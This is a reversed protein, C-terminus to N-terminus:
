NWYTPKGKMHIMIVWKRQNIQKKNVNKVSWEAMNTVQTTNEMDAPM